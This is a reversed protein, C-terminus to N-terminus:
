AAARALERAKDFMTMVDAHSGKDNVEVPSMPTAQFLIQRAELYAGAHPSAKDLAGLSCWSCANPDHAAVRHGLYDQAYDGTIWNIPDRILDQAKTLIEYADM